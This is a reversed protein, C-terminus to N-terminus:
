TKKVSDVINKAKVQAEKFEVSEYVESPEIMITGRGVVRLTSYSNNVLEILSEDNEQRLIWRLM